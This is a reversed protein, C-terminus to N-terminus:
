DSLSIRKLDEAVLVTGDFFNNIIEVSQLQTNITRNMFHSLLVKKVKAQKAIKGIESPPMHLNRAAGQAQEPIANNIVLLDSGLALNKLTNYQNSMDGSFTISCGAINVRWAVAAVPGHHVFTSQLSVDNNVRHHHIKDLVLPIDITTIKFNAGRDGSLFDSLYAFAGKHGILREVFTSTAPMLANEAPGLITLPQNRASFYSGKIFAPLDASHDVHLHTLLIVELDSFNAKVLGFNVSSGPGTDILIRAKDNYWILYASSARGDDLEPGGSGLVQLMVKDSQCINEARVLGSLGIQILVILGIRVLFITNPM